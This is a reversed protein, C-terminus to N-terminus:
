SILIKLFISVSILVKFMGYYLDTYINKETFLIVEFLELLFIKQNTLIAYIMLHFPM